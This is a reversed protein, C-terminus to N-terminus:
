GAGVARLRLSVRADEFGRASRLEGDAFAEGEAVCLLFMSHISKRAIHYCVEQTARKASVSRVRQRAETILITGLEAVKPAIM